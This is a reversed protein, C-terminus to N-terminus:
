LNIFDGCRLRRTRGGVWIYQLSERRKSFNSYVVAVATVARVARRLGVLLATSGSTLPYSGPPQHPQWTYCQMCWRMYAASTM